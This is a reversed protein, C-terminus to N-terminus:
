GSSFLDVYQGSNRKGGLGSSGPRNAWGMYDVMAAYTEMNALEWERDPIDPSWAQVFSDRPSLEWRPDVLGMAKMKEYRNERIVDWGADYRGKYEAIAETPAHMPWHAATYSLYVFFPKDGEHVM